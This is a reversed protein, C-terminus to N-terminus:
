GALDPQIRSIRVQEIAAGSTRLVTVYYGGGLTVTDRASPMRGLQNMLLGTVTSISESEPIRIELEREVMFLPTDGRVMVSDDDMRLPERQVQHSRTQEHEDRIEGFIAELVDEMTVFGVLRETEDLVLAMHPAGLRFQRLLDSIPADEGVKEVPRLHRRLRAHYDPGLEEFAIDKFHLLGLVAGSEADLYPYRSYRHHQLQHKVAAPEDSSEIAILERRLRMVDSAHLQPLETAHALVRNLEAAAPKQKEERGRPLHLIMHLEDLTYPSEHGHGAQIDLGFRRLVANASHNLFWIFPFMLWYFAFLPVATWLSLAEPKRLAASKPALEGVVIHLYSITAFAFIFAVLHTAEPDGDWGMRQLPWELLSAFAPEGAWGLGLSALTIGLQCASLYADLNRHVALLIRGRFGHLRSLEEVRTHRVKVIAFEAAVFFGNLLVLLLAFLLLLANETLNMTLFGPNGPGM